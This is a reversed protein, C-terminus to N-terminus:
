QSLPTYGYLQFAAWDLTDFPYDNPHLDNTLWHETAHLRAQLSSAVAPAPALEGSALNERIAGLATLTTSATLTRLWHSAMALATAPHVGDRLSRAVHTIVLHAAFDDVPWVPAIVLRAGLTSLLSPFSLPEDSFSRRFKGAECVGLLVLEATVRKSDALLEGLRLKGDAACIESRWPNTGDFAGHCSLLVTGPTELGVRLAEVTVDAGTVVTGSRAVVSGDLVAFPLSGDADVFARSPSAIPVAPATLAEAFADLTPCVSVRTFRQSLRSGDPLEANALPLSRFLRHPVIVLEDGGESIAPVCQALWSGVRALLLTVVASALSRESATGRALAEEWPDFVRLRLENYDSNQLMAGTLNGDPGVSVVSLGEGLAFLSVLMRRGGRAWARAAALADRQREDALARIAAKEAGRGCALWAYLRGKGGEGALLAGELGAQGGIAHHARAALMELRTWAGLMSEWVDPAPGTALLLRRAAMGRHAHLAAKSADGLNLWLRAALAEFNLKPIGSASRLDIEAAEIHHVASERDGLSLDLEALLAKIHGRQLPIEDPGPEECLSLARTFADRAGAREGALRRYNGLNIWVTSANVWAAGDELAQVLEEGIARARRVAEPRQTESLRAALLFKAKFAQESTADDRAVLSELLAIAESAQSTDGYAQALALGAEIVIRGDGLSQAAEYCLVMDGLARGIGGLIAAMRTQSVQHEIMRGLLQCLQAVASQERARKKFELADLYGRVARAFDGLVPRAYSQALAISLEGRVGVDVEFEKSDVIALARRAIRRATRIARKDPPHARGFHISMEALVALHANGATTVLERGPFASAARRLL